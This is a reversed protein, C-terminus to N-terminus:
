RPRGKQMQLKNSRAKNRPKQSTPEIGRVVVIQGKPDTRSQSLTFKVKWCKAAATLESGVDQGKPFVGLAGRKLLPYAMGLLEPLPALARATVVDLNEPANEVFDEIRMAHVVAAAGAVRIAERLFAAKKTSSEVLHVDAGAVDALACAIVAGPFGGGSGLDAWVRAGPALAILQLSDAIHRTWITGETSPAILNMRQQWDLLLAVFRDLREATERSVTVLEFARARDAALDPARGAGGTM